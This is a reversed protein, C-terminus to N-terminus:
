VNSINYILKKGDTDDNEDITKKNTRNIADLLLTILANQKADFRDLTLEMSEIKTLEPEFDSMRENILNLKKISTDLNQTEGICKTLKIDALDISDTMQKFRSIEFDLQKTKSTLANLKELTEELKNSDQVFRILKEDVAKVSEEVIKIRDYDSHFRSTQVRLESLDRFSEKRCFM